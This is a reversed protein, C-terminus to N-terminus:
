RLFDLLVSPPIKVTVSIEIRTDDDPEDRDEPGDPDAAHFESADLWGWTEDPFVVRYGGGDVAEITGTEGDFDSDHSNITVKDGITSSSPTTTGIPILNDEDCFWCYGDKGLGGADHGFEFPKDFEVAPAKESYRELDYGIVRGAHCGVINADVTGAKVRVRQGVKFKAM